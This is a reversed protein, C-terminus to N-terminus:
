SRMTLETSGADSCLFSDLRDLDRSLLNGSAAASISESIKIKLDSKFNAYWSNVEQSINQILETDINTLFYEVEQWSDFTPIPHKGLLNHYYDYPQWAHSRLIIPIAEAELVEFLRYTDLNLNGISCPVFVSQTLIEWYDAGSLSNTGMFGHYEHIFNPQISSLCSIMLQRDSKFSDGCFSWQYKRKHVPPPNIQRTVALKDTFGLPMFSIKEAPLAPLYQRKMFDFKPLAYKPSLRVYWQYIFRKIGSYKYFYRNQLFFSKGYDKWLSIKGGTPRFYERFVLSCKNLYYVSLNHDYIEDMVHILGFSHGEQSLHPFLKYDASRNDIDYETSGNVIFIPFTNARLCGDFQRIECQFIESIWTRNVTIYPKLEILDIQTSLKPFDTKPSNM